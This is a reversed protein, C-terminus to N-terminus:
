ENLQVLSLSFHYICHPRRFLDIIKIRSFYPVGITGQTRSGSMQEILIREISADDTRRQM